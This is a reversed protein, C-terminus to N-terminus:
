SCGSDVEEMLQEEGVNRACVGSRHAEVRPLVQTGGFDVEVQKLLKRISTEMQNCWADSCMWEVVLTGNTGGELTSVFYYGLKKGLKIFGAKQVQSHEL